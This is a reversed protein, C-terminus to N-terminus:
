KNFYELPNNKDAYIVIDAKGAVQNFWLLNDMAQNYFYVNYPVDLSKVLDACEQIQQETADVILVTKVYDPPTIFNSHM